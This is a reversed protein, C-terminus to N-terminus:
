KHLPKFGYLEMYDAEQQKHLFEVMVELYM